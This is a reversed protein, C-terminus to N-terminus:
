LTQSGSLEIIESSISPATYFTLHQVGHVTVQCTGCGIPSGLLREEIEHLPIPAATTRDQTSHLTHCCMVPVCRFLFFIFYFSSYSAHWVCVCVVKDPRSVSRLNGKEQIGGLSESSISKEGHRRQIRAPWNRM